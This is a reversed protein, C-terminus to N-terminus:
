KKFKIEIPILIKENLEEYQARIDLMDALDRVQQWIKIDMKGGRKFTQWLYLAMALEEKGVDSLSELKEIDVAM